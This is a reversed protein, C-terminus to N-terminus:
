LLYDRAEGITYLSGTICIMDNHNAIKKAYKIADHIKEIVVVEKKGAMKNLLLPNFARRSQSKTAIIIDAIPAIIDLIDQINKDKLIGFIIILNEYVFNEEIATKLFNMGAVNHAGDLLIMPKIGIIEMRGPNKTKEFAENIADDTIYIGNMQLIELTAMTIAANEAQHKGIMSTKLNYEKLFGNIKIEQGDLGTSLINWSDNDIITISSNKQLSTKKIVELAKGTGATVTPIDKKIIGAKEFSIDEIKDGLINQHEFTVNTIITVIPNVINTADYRGGLGVEIIAFDVKKDKFLQFAMATVIEFFTPSNNKIAMEDVIPKIKSILKEIEAESIEKKNIVFRESFRQLHPSTYTGVNYGCNVLASELFRCVSGKGNTGGVHIIKYNNQPNGLKNCIHKIRDLGLKIGFKEFSYLWNICKKYNM